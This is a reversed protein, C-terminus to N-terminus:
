HCRRHAGPSTLVHELGHRIRPVSAIQSPAFSRQPLPTRPLPTGQPPLQRVDAKHRQVVAASAVAGSLRESQPMHFRYQRYVFGVPM